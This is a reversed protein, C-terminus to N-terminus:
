VGGEDGNNTKKGLEKERKEGIEEGEIETQVVRKWMEREEGRTNRKKRNFWRRRRVEERIEKTVWEAEVVKKGKKKGVRVEFKKKTTGLAANVRDDM